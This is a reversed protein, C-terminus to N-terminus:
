RELSRGKDVSELASLKACYNAMTPFVELQRLFCKAM